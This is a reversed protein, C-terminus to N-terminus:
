PFRIGKRYVIVGTTFIASGIVSSWGLVPYEAIKLDFLKFLITIAPILLGVIILTIGITKRM